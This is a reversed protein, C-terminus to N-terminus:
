LLEILQDFSYLKAHGIRVGEIESIIGRSSFEKIINRITLDNAKLHAEAQPVTFSPAEFLFDIFRAAYPSKSTAFSQHITKHLGKIRDILVQTDKLQLSVSKLFFKLWVNLDKTKDTKRLAAVYESRHAEFYGSLYLIPSSLRREACLILPILLRGVRGNGDGFPHVAEFQYHAIGAKVLTTEEGEKLYAFFNDMYAPVHVPEPPIYLARDITDTESQGIFVIDDRYEGLLGTHRVNNLLLSHMGKVIPGNIERGKWIEGLGWQMAKRYNSVQRTDQGKSSKAGADFRFIDSATSVTGEIRSSVEAEKAMLPAILLSPNKLDNHSGKLEGLAFTADSLEEAFNNYDLKLTGSFLDEPRNHTIKTKKNPM